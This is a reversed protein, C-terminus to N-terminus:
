RHYLPLMVKFRTSEWPVSEVRIEGGHQQIIEHCLTLGLGTGVGAPKTTFFPDFIKEIIEPQIGTGADYVELSLCEAGEEGQVTASIRLQKGPDGEPFRENLSHCANLVLNLLLQQIQQFEVTIQPLDEPISVQLDIGQNTLKDQVITLVPELCDSLSVTERTRHGPHSISLLSKVIRAIRVGERHIREVVEQCSDDVPLRGSLLEACSIIGAIPNNIEHAVGSAMQGLASMRSMQQSKAELALREAIEHELLAKQQMLLDHQSRVQDHRLKMQIYNRVRLLLNEIKYPKLLYDVVGLDMAAVHTVVENMGTLFLIPIDKLGAEERIVACVEFGSLHPMMVDLLILDPPNTKILRIAEYSDQTSEVRYQTCLIKELLRLNIADDDVILIRAVDSM